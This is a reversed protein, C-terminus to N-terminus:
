QLGLAAQAARTLDAAHFPKTMYSVVRDQLKGVLKNAPDNFATLIIVPFKSDPFRTKVEDLVQWGSMGPMGIDLVMVDPIQEHLRELAEFGDFAHHSEIGVTELMTQALVGIEENDDVILARYNEMM